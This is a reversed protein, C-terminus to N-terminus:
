RREICEGLHESFCSVDGEDADFHFPENHLECWGTTQGQVITKECHYCTLTDNRTTDALRDVEEEDLICEMDSAQCEDVFMCSECPDDVRNQETDEMPYRELDMQEICDQFAEEKSEGHGTGVFIFDWTQKAM